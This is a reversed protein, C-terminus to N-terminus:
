RNYIHERSSSHQAIIGVYQYNPHPLLKIALSLFYAVNSRDPYRSASDSNNAIDEGRIFDLFIDSLM